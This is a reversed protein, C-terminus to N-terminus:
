SRRDLAPASHQYGGRTDWFGPATCLSRFGPSSEGLILRASGLLVRDGTQDPLTALFYVASPDYGDHDARLGRRYYGRRRYVRFRQELVASREDETTAVGFEIERGGARIRILVNMKAPAYTCTE